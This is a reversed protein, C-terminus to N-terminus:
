SRLFSRLRHLRMAARWGLFCVGLVVLAVIVFAFATGAGTAARIVMGVLVTLLWVRIAVRLGLPNAHTYASLALALLTGILFPWATHVVGHLGASEDHSARGITAFVLVVLVDAIVATPWPNRRM